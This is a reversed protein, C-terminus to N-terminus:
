ASAGLHLFTPEFLIEDVYCGVSESVTSPQIETADQPPRWLVDSSKPVPPQMHPRDLVNVGPEVAIENWGRHWVSGGDFSVRREHGEYEGGSLGVARVGPAGVHLLLHGGCQATFEFTSPKEEAVLDPDVALRWEGAYAIRFMVFGYTMVRGLQSPAVSPRENGVEYALTVPVYPDWGEGDEDWSQVFVGDPIGVNHLRRWLRASGAWDSAGACDGARFTRATPHYWPNEEGAEFTVTSGSIATAMTKRDFRCTMFRERNAVDGAPGGWTNPTIGGSLDVRIHRMARLLEEAYDLYVGAVVSATGMHDPRFQASVLRNRISAIGFERNSVTPSADNPYSWASRDFFGPGHLMGDSAGCSQLEADFSAKDFWNGKDAVRELAASFVRLSAASRPEPPLAPIGVRAAEARERLALCLTEWASTLALEGM